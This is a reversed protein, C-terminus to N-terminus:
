RGAEMPEPELWLAMSEEERVLDALTVGQLHARLVGDVSRWLARLSCDTTHVCDSHQGPHCECFDDPFLAGGLAHLVQWVTLEAPPRALRYGGRSGKTSAVLGALRLERLLKGAYEPSLGEARAIELIPVPQLRGRRAVQLLCRLGYEEQSSLRV